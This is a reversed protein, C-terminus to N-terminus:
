SPLSLGGPRTKVVVLDDGKDIVDLPASCPSPAAWRRWRKVMHRSPITREAKLAESYSFPIALDIGFGTSM